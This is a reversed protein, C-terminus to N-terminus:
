RFRVYGGIAVVVLLLGGGILTLSPGGGGSPQEVEVPISYTDSTVTDGDAEDYQFDMSVPYTKELAGGAASISFTLTRSEGPDLESVFSEDDNASIPSDAFLKASIDTLREDGANEITM